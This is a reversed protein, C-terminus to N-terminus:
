DDKKEPEYKERSLFVTQELGQIKRVLRNVEEATAISSLEPHAEDGQTYFPYKDEYFGWIERKNPM